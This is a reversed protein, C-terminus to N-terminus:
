QSKIKSRAILGEYHRKLLDYIVFEHQRQHSRMMRNVHMHVLSDALEARSSALTGAAALADLQAVLPKM